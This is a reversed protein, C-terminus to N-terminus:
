GVSFIVQFLQRLLSLCEYIVTLTIVCLVWGDVLAYARNSFGQIQAAQYVFEEMLVLTQLQVM